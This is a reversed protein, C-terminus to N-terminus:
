QPLPEIDPYYNLQRQLRQAREREIGLKLAVFIFAKCQGRLATEEGFRQIGVQYRRIMENYSQRALEIEDAAEHALASPLPARPDVHAAFGKPAHLSELWPLGVEELCELVHQLSVELM